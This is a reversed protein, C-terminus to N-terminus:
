TDYHVRHALVQRQLMTIILIIAFLAYAQASAYGMRFYQFGQQYISYVITFTRDLPGGGTLFLPLAFVKFAGIMSIVLIFYTTPSLLPLTIYRFVQLNNAGDIEAAEYYEKSVNQLGALFIVIDRGLFSWVSIAILAPMAQGPDLLWRQPPIGIKGILYNLLGFYDPHFLGGWVIASAAFPTVYPIFFATRYWAMGLLRRNLLVAFLLALPLAVAVSVVAYYTTNGLATLFKEDQVLQAYNAFGIYPKVPDILNWRLLSVFFAYIIPFFSFVGLVLAAPLLFAYAEVNELLRRVRRARTQPIDGVRAAAELAPM